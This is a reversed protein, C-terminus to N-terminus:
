KKDEKRIKAFASKLFAVKNEKSGYSAPVSSLQDKIFQEETSNEYYSANFSTNDVKVKRTKM